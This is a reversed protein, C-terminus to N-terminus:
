KPWAAPVGRHTAKIPVAKIALFEKGLDFSYLLLGSIQALAYSM